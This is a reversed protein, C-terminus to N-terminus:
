LIDNNYLVFAIQMTYSTFNLNEKQMLILSSKLDIIQGGFM